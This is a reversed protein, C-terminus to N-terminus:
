AGCGTGPGECILVLIIKGRAGSKSSRERGEAQFMACYVSRHEEETIRDDLEPVRNSASLCALVPCAFDIRRRPPPTSAPVIGYVPTRFGM